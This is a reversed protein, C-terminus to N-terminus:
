LLAGAPLLVLVYASIFGAPSDTDGLFSLLVVVVALSM